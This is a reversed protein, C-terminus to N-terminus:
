RIMMSIGWLAKSRMHVIRGPTYHDHIDDMVFYCLGLQNVGCVIEQEVQSVAMLSNEGIFKSMQILMFFFQAPKSAFHIPSSCKGREDSFYAESVNGSQQRFEPFNEVFRQM